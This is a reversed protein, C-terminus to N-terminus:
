MKSSFISNALIYSDVDPCLLYSKFVYSIEAELKAKEEVTLASQKEIYDTCLIADYQTFVPPDVSLDSHRYYVKFHRPDSPVWYYQYDPVDTSSQQKHNTEVVFTPLFDGPDIKYM